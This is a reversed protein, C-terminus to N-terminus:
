VKIAYCIDIFGDTCGDFLVEIKNLWGIKWSNNWTLPRLPLIKHLRCDCVNITM